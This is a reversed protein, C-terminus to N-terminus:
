AAARVKKASVPAPLLAEAATALKGAYGSLKGRLSQRTQREAKVSEWYLAIGPMEATHQRIPQHAFHEITDQRHFNATGPAYHNNADDFDHPGVPQAMAADRALLARERQIVNARRHAAQVAAVEQQHFTVAHDDAAFGFDRALAKRTRQTRAAFTHSVARYYVAHTIEHQQYQPVQNFDPELSTSSVPSHPPTVIPVAQPEDIINPRELLSNM